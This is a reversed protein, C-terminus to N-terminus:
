DVANSIKGLIFHPDSHLSFEELFIYLHFGVESNPQLKRQSSYMM